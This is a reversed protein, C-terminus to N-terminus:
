KGGVKKVWGLVLTLLSILFAGVPLVDGIRTYISEGKLVPITASLGASTYEPLRVLSTGTPTIFGSVGTNACRAIYRRNEIARMCAIQYHQEPGETYDYWGDNTIIALVGAGMKTYNNVFGPYISEICIIPGVEVTKGHNVLTLNKQEKGVGWSSIGVSWEFWSKAFSFISAYPLREGFPTLNIKHYIQPNLSDHPKPNLLLASNFADYMQTSDRFYKATVPTKAGRPYIHFDAFGTFLSTGSTDLWNQIFPIEHRYNVNL